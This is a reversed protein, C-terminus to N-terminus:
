FEEWSEGNGIQGSSAKIPESSPIVPSNKVAIRESAVSVSPKDKPSWPRSSKRREQKASVKNADKLKPSAPQSLDVERKKVPEPSEVVQALDNSFQMGGKGSEATTFFGMMQNLKKAQRGLNESASAAEEVLAANQQTLEDMQTVANNVGGIGESQEKSATAIDGVITTVKGVGSLIEELTTGSENVLRSGEDVKISSDKILEAIEKAATASRSALNRVESAVVAFGRGQEGARAAEVSANLALLNTQFAIDDIVGIIDAMKRSSENIQSMAQVANGVVSGGRQALQQTEVALNSAEMASDANQQVTATMEEMSSATQQLSTAQQETRQSLNLNGEAIEGAGSRVASSVVKIDDVVQTLKAVTANVGTKLEEFAGEYDDEIGSSLDGNAVSNLVNSTQHVVQDCQEILQNMSGSLSKFFGEKEALCIRGSLDGRMASEVVSQVENEVLIENTRDRWEIVVGLRNGAEDVVPSAEFMITKNGYEILGKESGKMNEVKTASLSMNQYLKSAPSGVLEKASFGSNVQRIDSQYRSMLDKMPQNAYSIHHKRDIILMSASASELAFLVRQNQLVTRENFEDKEKVAKQLMQMTRNIGDNRSQSAEDIDSLDIDEESTIAEIMRQVKKEESEMQRIFQQKMLYGLLLTVGIVTLSTIAVNLLALRAGSAMERAQEIRQEGIATEVGRLMEIKKTQAGFWESPEVGFGGKDSKDLAIDRFRQTQGIVNSSVGSAYLEKQENNAYRDFGQLYINEKALVNLLKAYSDKDFANKAFTNALVAREIGSYEKVLSLSSAAQMSLIIDAIADGEIVNEMSSSRLLLDIEKTYTGLVKPLDISQRLVQDRMAPLKAHMSQAEDILKVQGLNPDYKKSDLFTQLQKYAKDVKAHQSSLERSFKAGNSGLYGASLGREVQLEHIVAGTKQSMEINSVTSLSSQYIDQYHKIGIYSIYLLGIMPVVLMLMLKKTNDLNQIFNMAKYKRTNALLLIQLRQVYDGTPM